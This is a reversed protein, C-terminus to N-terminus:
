DDSPLQPILAEVEDIEKRKRNLNAMQRRLEGRVYRIEVETKDIDNQLQQVMETLEHMEAYQRRNITEQMQTLINREGDDALEHFKGSYEAMLSRVKEIEVRKKELQEKQEDNNIKQQELNKSHNEHAMVLNEIKEKLNTEDDKNAKQDVPPPDTESAHRCPGRTWRNYFEELGKKTRLPCDPAEWNKKAALRSSRLQDESLSNLSLRTLKVSGGLHLEFLCSDVHWAAEDYWAAEYHWVGILDQTQLIEVNGTAKDERTSLIIQQPYYIRSPSGEGNSL